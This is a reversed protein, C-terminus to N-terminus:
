RPRKIFFGREDDGNMGVSQYVRHAGDLTAGSLLMVKYCNKQWAIDLAAELLAKMLGRQRFAEGTIVHEIIGFPTAGNTLTLNLTLSCSAAVQADVEAILLFSRDDDILQQFTKDALDSPLEPDNPRLQRYLALLGELDGAKAFRIRM